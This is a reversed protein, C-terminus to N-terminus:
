ITQKNWVNLTNNILTEYDDFKDNYYDQAEETFRIVGDSSETYTDAGFYMETIETAIEDVCELFKSDSVLIKNSM